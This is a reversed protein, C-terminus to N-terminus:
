SLNTLGGFMAITTMRLAAKARLIERLTKIQRFSLFLNGRQTDLRCVMRGSGREKCRGRAAQASRAAVSRLNRRGLDRARKRSTWPCIAPDNSSQDRCHEGDVAQRASDLVAAFIMAQHVDLGAYKVDNLM